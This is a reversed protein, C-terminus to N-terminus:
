FDTGIGLHLRPAPKDDSVPYAVDVRVMGIPSRWRVGIGTGTKLDMATLDDFANGTDVFAAAYWNDGYVPYMAEASLTLLYQGGIVQGSENRPALREYGYGRVSNDGGAFFRLSKPLKAFDDVWTAGVDGRGRFIARGWPRSVVARATGQIMTTSSLLTESAGQLKLDLAHGRVPFLPDDLKRYGLKIGPLLFYNGEAPDKGYQSREYLFDVFAAQTWGGRRRAYQSGITGSSTVIENNDERRTRAYFDLSDTLPKSLPISYVTELTQERQAISLGGSWTHGRRNVWRREIDARARPGIDTKYGLRFEYSTRKKPSLTVVVPVRGDAREDLDPRVRVDAFYGSANLDSSIAALRDSSYADGPHVPLLRDVLEPKLFDQEADIQGFEHRAGSELTLFVKAVNRVPDVVLERRTYRADLFGRARARNVLGDRVSDYRGQNLTQGESLDLSGMFERAARDQEFPGVIRIDLRDIIVPPGPDIDLVARLCDDEHDLRTKIRANFHGLARLAADAVDRIDRLYADFRVEPATCPFRRPPVLARVNKELGPEDELGLVRLQDRKGNKDEASGRDEALVSGIAGLLCLCAVIAAAFRNM